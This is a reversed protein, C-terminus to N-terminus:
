VSVVLLPTVPNDTFMFVKPAAVKVVLLTAVKTLKEPTLKSEGTAPM